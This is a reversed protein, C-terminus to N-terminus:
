VMIADPLLLKRYALKRAVKKGMRPPMVGVFFSQSLGNYVMIMVLLLMQPEQFLTITESILVFTSRNDPANATENRWPPRLLLFSICALAGAVLFVIFM